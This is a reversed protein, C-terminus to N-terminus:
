GPAADAHRSGSASAGAVAPACDLEFWIRMGGDRETGWRDSLTDVLHLGWGSGQDQGVVRPGVVFGRGGDVVEVRVTEPSTSVLLEIEGPSREPRSHRVSNAVLESVLLRLTGM